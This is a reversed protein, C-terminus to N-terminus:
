QEEDPLPQGSAAEWRRKFVEWEAAEVSSFTTDAELAPPVGRIGSLRALCWSRHPTLCVLCYKGAVPGSRLLSLLQELAASHHGIPNAKFERALHLANTDIAYM